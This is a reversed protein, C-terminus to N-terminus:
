QDEKGNSAGKPQKTMVGSNQCSQARASTADPRLYVDIVPDGARLVYSGQHAYTRALHDVAGAMIRQGLPRGGRWLREAGKWDEATERYTILVAPPAALLRATDAQALADNVVDVNHSPSWTPPWRHALTYLLGMEPFTFVGDGPCTHQDILATTEDVFRVTATPLRLGALANQRSPELATAVSGEDELDFGFPLDLKERLQMVLLFALVGYVYPRARSGSGALVLALLLGLGPLLMAEFAPWSLSLALAVAASCAACLLLRDAWLSGPARGRLRVAHVLLWVLGILTAYVVAKTSDHLAPLRRALEALAGLLVTAGSARALWPKLPPLAKELPEQFLNGSTEWAARKAAWALVSWFVGLVVWGANDMGVMGWRRVFDGPHGAKASPGTVFLMALAPQLIHLRGLLLAVAAVPPLVGACFSLLWTFGRSRAARGLLYAPLPLLVVAIVGGVTQKTLLSLAACVGSFFGLAALRSRPQGHELAASALLGAAIAWLLADHNYSALPDTRDGASLTITVFAAVAAFRAKTLQQLWCMLMSALVMREVVAAVRLVVLRPGFLNLLLAAKLSNLPPGATFYDRYPLVGELLAMGGSFEGNGSRLGAFRNFFTAFFLATLLWLTGHLLLHERWGRQEGAEEMAGQRTRFVQELM